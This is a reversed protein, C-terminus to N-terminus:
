GTVQTLSVTPRPGKTCRDAVIDSGLQRLRACVRQSVLHPKQPVVRFTETVVIRCRHSRVVLSFMERRATDVGFASLLYDAPHCHDRYESLMCAAGSTGGQRYPGPGISRALCHVTAADAGAAVVGAGVVAAIAM